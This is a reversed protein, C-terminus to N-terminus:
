IPNVPNAEEVKVKKGKLKEEKIKQLTQKFVPSAIAAYAFRDLIDVKGLQEKELGGKQHLWGVIDIKSIKDKKGVNIFLTRFAPMSLNEQKKPLDIEEPKEKVFHPIKDEQDLLFYADGKANMRATRGNRHIMADEKLPLQYHIIADVAPIDLGRSGLDTSVLVRVSGNKFLILTKERDVQELGGHYFGHLFKMKKLQMSIRNVAERHNCFVIVTKDRLAGLLLMLAELKDDGKVRVQKLNLTPVAKPLAQAFNLEFIRRKGVFSPIKELPTASTFLRKKLSKCHNVIYEMEDKFGSELSKDFEDLVLYKTQTLDVNENRIHYSIRGPTGILVSPAVSLSSEEVRTQHGGYVCTVKFGTSMQKFVGEIQLALERTPVVVIAQIQEKVSKDLHGALPLLFALTKGSGTPSILIV